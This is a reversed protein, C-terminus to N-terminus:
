PRKVVHLIIERSETLELGFATMPESGVNALPPEVTVVTYGPVQMTVIMPEIPLGTIPEGFPAKVMPVQRTRQRLQVGYELHTSVEEGNEDVAYVTLTHKPSLSLDPLEIQMNPEPIEVRRTALWGRPEKSDHEGYLYFERGFPLFNIRDFQFVGDEDTAVRYRLKRHLSSLCVTYNPVHVGNAVVRGRVSFGPLIPDNSLQMPQLWRLGSGRVYCALWDNSALQGIPCKGERDTSLFRAPRGLGVEDVLDIDDFGKLVAILGQEIPKGEGDLLELLPRKGSELAVRRIKPQWARQSRISLYDSLKGEYGAKMVWFRIEWPEDPLSLSFKGQSDTVVSLGCLPHSLPVINAVGNEIKVAFVQLTAEAVPKEDEDVVTGQFAIGKEGNWSATETELRRMATQKKPIVLEPPKALQPDTVLLLGERDSTTELRQSFPSAWEDSAEGPQVDLVVKGNALQHCEFKGDSGTRVNTNADILQSPTNQMVSIHAGEVPEGTPTVVEGRVSYSGLQDVFDLAPIETHQNSFRYSQRERHSQQLSRPGTIMITFEPVQPSPIEMVFRGDGDTTASGLYDEPGYTITQVPAAVTKNAMAIVSVGPMGSGNRLITGAVTRLVNSENLVIVLPAGVYSGVEDSDLMLRKGLNQNSALLQVKGFAGPPPLVEFTGDTRSETVSKWTHWDVSAQSQLRVYALPKGESDIVRGRIPRIPKLRFTHVRSASLPDDLDIELTPPSWPQSSDLEEGAFTNVRQAPVEYGYAVSALKLKVKGKPAYISCNGQADTTALSWRKWSPEGIGDERDEAQDPGLQEVETAILELGSIGQDTEADVVRCQIPTGRELQFDIAAGAAPRPGVYTLGSFPPYSPIAIAFRKSPEDSGYRVYPMAIGNGDAKFTFAGLMTQIRKEGISAGTKAEAVHIPILSQKAEVLQTQYSANIDWLESSKTVEEIWDPHEVVPNVWGKKPMSPLRFRGARQTRTRPVLPSHWFEAIMPSAFDEKQLSFEGFSVMVNELPEGKAGTIRGAMPQGPELVIDLTQPLSHPAVPQIHWAFDESLVMVYARPVFDDSSRGIATNHTRRVQQLVVKGQADSAGMALPLSFTEGLVGHERPLRDRASEVLAVLAGPIPKGKEDTLSVVVNAEPGLRKVSAVQDILATDLHQYQPLAQLREIAKQLDHPPAAILEIALSTSTPQTTVGWTVGGISLAAIAIMLFAIRIPMRGPSLLTELRPDELLFKVRRGLQSRPEAMSVAFNTPPTDNAWRSLLVLTEAYEVPPFHQLVSADCIVERLWLMRRRMHYYLPHPWLLIGVAHLALHMWQDRRQYHKLEHFLIQQLLREDGQEALRTPVLVLRRRFGGIMPIAVQSHSKLEFRFGYVQELKKQTAQWSTSVVPRATKALQVVKRVGIVVFLLRCSAVLLFGVFVLQFSRMIGHTMGDEVLLLAAQEGGPLAKTEMDKTSAVDITGGPEARVSPEVLGDTKSRLPLRNSSQAEVPSASVEATNEWAPKEGRTKEEPRKMAFSAVSDSSDVAEMEVSPRSPFRDMAMFAAPFPISIAFPALWPRILLLGPLFFLALLTCRWVVDQVAPTTRREVFSAVALLLTVLTLLSLFLTM